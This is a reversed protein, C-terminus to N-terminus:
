LIQEVTQWFVASTMSNKLMGAASSAPATHYSMAHLEVGCVTVQVNSHPVRTMHSMRKVPCVTGTAAPLGM